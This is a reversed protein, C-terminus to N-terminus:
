LVDRGARLKPLFRLMVQIPEPEVIKLEALLMMAPTRDSGRVHETTKACLTRAQEGEGISLLQVDVYDSHVLTETGGQLRVIGRTANPRDRQHVLLKARSDRRM